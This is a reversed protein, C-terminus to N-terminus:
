QQKLEELAVYYKRRQEAKHLRKSIREKYFISAYMSWMGTLEDYNVFENIFSTISDYKSVHQNKHDIVFLTYGNEDKKFKTEYIKRIQKLYHTNM